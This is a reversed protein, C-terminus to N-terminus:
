RKTSPAPRAGQATRRARHPIRPGGRYVALLDAITLLAFSKGYHAMLECSSTDIFEDLFQDALRSMFQENESIRKPTLLRSLLSPRPRPRTSGHHGHARAPCSPATPPSRPASTAARPTFPLGPFPGSVSICSSFNDIAFVKVAEAHGTVAYVGPTVGPDDPVKARLEDFYPYSRPGVGAGHFDTWSAATTTQARECHRRQRFYTSGTSHDTRHSVANM